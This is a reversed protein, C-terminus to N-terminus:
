NLRPQFNDRTRLPREGGERRSVYVWSRIGTIAVISFLVM